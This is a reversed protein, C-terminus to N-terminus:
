KYQTTRGTAERQMNQTACRVARVSRIKVYFNFHRSIKVTKSIRFVPFQADWFELVAVHSILDTVLM